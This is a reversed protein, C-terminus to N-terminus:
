LFSWSPEGHMLLVTPGGAPGEDLFHVRLLDGDGSPVDAYHAVFGFDDLGSFREDPTRLVRM